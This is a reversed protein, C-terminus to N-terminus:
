SREGPPMVQGVPVVFSKTEELLGDMMICELEKAGLLM